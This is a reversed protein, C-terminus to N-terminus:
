PVIWSNAFRYRLDLSAVFESDTAGQVHGANVIRHVGANGRASLGFPLSVSAHLAARWTRETVGAFLVPTSAYEDVTPFPQRFDGEGQRVLTLEPGLIVGPALVWNGRLTTQDYDSFNRALGISRIMMAETIDPTRYALNSVQTYLASWTGNLVSGDLTTTFGYSPPEDDPGLPCLVELFCNVQDDVLISVGLRPLSPLRLQVDLGVQLNSQDQTDTRTDLAFRMPNLVALDLGRAPGSILTSQTLAFDLFPILQFNFRHVVWWRTNREGNANTMDDLQAVLVQLNLRRPGLRAVLQDYSYPVPSVLLGAQSPPGWNRYLTGFELTLYPSRYAGYAYEARGQFPVGKDGQYDPDYRLSWDLTRQAMLVFRQFQLTGHGAFKPLVKGKGAPRVPDRRGQTAARLGGQTDFAFVVEGERPMLEDRIQRLTVKEADTLRSTDAQELAGVIEGVVWPRVMPSPDDIAGRVVLHELFPMAPHELPLYALSTFSQASV